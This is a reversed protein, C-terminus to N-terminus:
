QTVSDTVTIEYDAAEGNLAIGEDIVPVSFATDINGPFFSFIFSPFFTFLAILFAFIKQM